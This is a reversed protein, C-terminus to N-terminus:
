VNRLSQHTGCPGGLEAGKMHDGYSHDANPSWRWRVEESFHSTMLVKCVARCAATVLLLRLPHWFQGFSNRLCIGLIPQKRSVKQVRRDGMAPVTVRCGSTLFLVVRFTQLSTERAHRQTTEYWGNPTVQQRWRWPTILVWSNTDQLQLNEPITRRTTLCTTGSTEFFHVTEIKKTNCYRGATGHLICRTGSAVSGPMEKIIKGSILISCRIKICVVSVNRKMEWVVFTSRNLNRQLIKM